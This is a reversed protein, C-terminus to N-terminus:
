KCKRLYEVDCQKTGQQGGAKNREQHERWVFASEIRLNEVPESLFPNEYLTQDSHSWTGDKKKSPFV